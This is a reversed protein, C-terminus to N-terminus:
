NKLLAIYDETSIGAQRLIDALLPRPLLRGGHAPVVTRRGDAHRYIFHSGKSRTCSFGRLELIRGLTYADVLPLPTM